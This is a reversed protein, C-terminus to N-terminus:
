SLWQFCCAEEGIIPNLDQFSDRFAPTFLYDDQESVILAGGGRPSWYVERVDEPLGSFKQLIGYELDLTVLLPPIRSDTSLLGFGFLRDSILVPWDPIYTPTTDSGPQLEPINDIRLPYNVQELIMNVATPVIRWIRVLPTEDGEAVPYAAILRGDPMWTLAAPYDEFQYTGPVQAVMRRRTDIVARWNVQSNLPSVRALIFRGNPSWSLESFTVQVPNINGRPDTVEITNSVVLVPDPEVPSTIWVGQRDSWVLSRSDASWQVSGTCEWDLEQQCAGVRVPSSDEATSLAYIVGGQEQTTYVVWNSDPSLTLNYIRPTKELLVRTKESQLDLLVLTFQNEGNEASAHLFVVFKGQMDLTYEAVDEALFVSRGSQSDWRGLRQGSIFLLSGSPQRSASTPSATVAAAPPTQTEGPSLTEAPVGTLPSIPSAQQSDTGSAPRSPGGTLTPTVTAPLRMPFPTYDASTPEPLGPLPLASCAATMWALLVVLGRKLLSSRMPITM